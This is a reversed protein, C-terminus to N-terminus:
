QLSLAIVYPPYFVMVRFTQLLDLILSDLRVSFAVQNCTKDSSLVCRVQNYRTVCVKDIVSLHIKQQLDYIIYKLFM